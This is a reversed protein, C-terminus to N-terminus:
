KIIVIKKTSILRSQKYLNVLYIGNQLTSLQIVCSQVCNQKLVVKGTLDTLQIEANEDGESEVFLQDKAPNPYIKINDSLSIATLNNEENFITKNSTSANIPEIREEAVQFGYIKELLAIAIGGTLFDDKSSELLLQNKIGQNNKLLSIGSPNQSINLAIEQLDCFTNNKPTENRLSNIAVTAAAYRKAAILLGIRTYKAKPLENTALISLISDYQAGNEMNLYDRMAAHHILGIERQVLELQAKLISHKSLKNEVQKVQMYNLASSAINLNLIKNWLVPSLPYNKDYVDKLNQAPVNTRKFYTIIVSDSLFPKALLLDKLTNQNGSILITNILQQTNGGDRMAAISDIFAQRNLRHAALQTGSLLRSGFSPTNSVPCYISKLSSNPPNTGVIDVLETANSCSANTQPTPHWQSGNYSGHTTIAFSTPISIYYKNEAGTNCAVSYYKNRVSTQDNLINYVGQTTAVGYNNICNGCVRGSKEVGINYVSSFFDNCNMVLGVGTQQNYNVSIAWIPQQLSNFTNNYISNPNTGSNNVYIGATKIATASFDNNQVLYGDCGNLYLGYNPAALSNTGGFIFSNNLIQVGVINNLYIQGCPYYGDNNFTAHDITSAYSTTANTLYISTAFGTFTNRAPTGNCTTANIPNLCFDKIIFRSDIGYIGYANLPNQFPVTNFGDNNNGLFTCGYVRVNAIESGTIHAFALNSADGKYSSNYTFHDNKFYSRNGHYDLIISNTFYTYFAAGVKNNLYNANISQVIGGTTTLDPSGSVKKALYIGTKADKITGGNIDVMGQYNPMNTTGNISQDQGSNGWVEIGDWLKGCSSEIVGCSTIVLKAGQEVIIKANERMRLTGSITLKYGAKVTLNGNIQLLPNGYITNTNININSNDSACSPNQVVKSLDNSLHYHIKGLQKPSLYRRCDFNYGMINNSNIGPTMGACSLSGINWHAKDEFWYDDVLTAYPPLGSPYSGAPFVDAIPIANYDWAWTHELGMAHGLEHLILTTDGFTQGLNVPSHVMFIQNSPIDMAAGYGNNTPHTGWTLNIAAPDNYTNWVPASSYAANNTVFQFSNLVFQIKSNWYYAPNPSRNLNPPQLNAMIANWANIYNNADTITNNAFVGTGTSPKTVWFNLKVYVVSTTTTYYGAIDIPCIPPTVNGAPNSCKNPSQSFINGVLFAALFLILYHNNKM